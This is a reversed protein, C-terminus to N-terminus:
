KMDGKKLLLKGCNILNGVDDTTGGGKVVVNGELVVDEGVVINV